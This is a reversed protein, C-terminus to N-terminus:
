PRYWLARDQLPTAAPLQPNPLAIEQRKGLALQSLLQGNYRQFLQNFRGDKLAKRLGQELQAALEPKLPSVFFYMATPYHLVLNRDLESLEGSASWKLCTFGLCSAPAPRIPTNAQPSSTPM